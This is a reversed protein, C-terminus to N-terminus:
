RVGRGSTKEWESDEGWGGGGGWGGSGLERERERERKWCATVSGIGSYYTVISGRQGTNQVVITCPQRHM